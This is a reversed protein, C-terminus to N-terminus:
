RVDGTSYARNWRKSVIRLASAQHTMGVLARLKEKLDPRLPGFIPGYEFNRHSNGNLHACNSSISVNCDPLVKQLFQHAASQAM